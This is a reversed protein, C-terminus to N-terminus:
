HKILKAVLVGTLGGLMAGTAYTIQESASGISVKKVNYTWLYSIGFGCVAIGAWTTRSIFYTNASVLFVQAYGTLFIISLKNM